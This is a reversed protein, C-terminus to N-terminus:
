LPQEPTLTKMTVAHLEGSEIFPSLCAYVRQQRRVPPLGEFARSVVELAFSCGEGSITVQADEGLAQRIADVIANEDM